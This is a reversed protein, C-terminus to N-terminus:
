REDLKLCQEDLFQWGSSTLQLLETRLEPPFLIHLPAEQDGQDGPGSPFQQKHKYLRALVARVLLFDLVVLNTLLPHILVRRVLLLFLYGDCQRKLEVREEDVLSQEHLCGTINVFLEGLNYKCLHVWRETRREVM